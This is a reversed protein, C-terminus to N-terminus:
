KVVLTRVEVKHNLVIKVLYSGAEINAARIQKEKDFQHITEKYILKGSFDFIFVEEVKNNGQYNLAFNGNKSPNPAILVEDSPKEENGGEASEQDPEEVVPTSTTEIILSVNDVLAKTVTYANSKFNAIFRVIINQGEYGKLNELIQRTIEVNIGGEKPAIGFSQQDVMTILENSETYLGTTFTHAESLNVDTYNYEVLLDFSITASTMLLEEKPLAITQELVYEENQSGSFSTYAAFDGKTPLIDPVNACLRQLYNLVTFGKHCEDSEKIESSIWDGLRGCEFSGNKIYENKNNESVSFCSPQPECVVQAKWGSASIIVDSFLEFTLSGSTHSSIFTGPLSNGTYGSGNFLRPYSNDPGDYVRLYDFGYELDFSEFTVRVREGSVAPSVVSTSTENIEYDGDPGGSDYFYGSTCFDETTTISLPGVYASKKDGSCVARVYFDYNELSTLGNIDHYNENVNILTGTGISFGSIGYEIEWQSATGKEWQLGIYSPGIETYELEVPSPCLTTFTNIASFDTTKCPNDSKVRWFYQTNYELVDSIYENEFVSKSDIINTFNIDTAIQIDFTTANENESWIFMHNLFIGSEDDFPSVLNSASITDDFIYFKLQTKKEIGSVSRGIIFFTYEGVDLNQVGSLTIGVPTEVLQSGSISSPTFDIGLGLPLNEVSFTVEQDFDLYTKYTLEYSLEENFCLLETSTVPAISFESVQIQFNTSNVAFFINNVAKVMIRAHETSEVGQLVFTETGDNDINDQLTYPYTYGGDVSLLISVKDANIPNQDTNAVDWEVTIQKGVDITESISQSTVRFPGSTDDVTVSMGDTNTQGGGPENDRVTFEFKMNRAVSPLVEWTPTLDGALVDALQPMYRKTSSSPLRSRFLPGNTWNSQPYNSSFPNEPNNQEWCYTLSTDGDIDNADGQLVFPTSRPIIFDPGANAVPAINGTDIVEACASNNITWIAVDRIDVYNFYDDPTNQVNPSCIGAYGMISSGSGPEVESNFGSRCNSSSQVHYGGFQHGFEHAVILNFHDSDPARHVTYGKGKSGDTCVCAICGANGYVADEVHFLHGVDYGWGEDFSKTDLTNQLETNLNIGTSYPDSLPDLFLLSDNEPIIQMTVGFDREFIANVRVITAVAAAMIKTKRQSDNVETGDLFYQSYDGSTSLALRYRRLKGDNANRSNISQLDSLKATLNDTTQCDFDFRRSQKNSRYFLHSNKNVPKILMTQKGATTISGRLGVIPCYTFQITKNPDTISRGVYTKISPYKKALDRHMVDTEHVKYAILNGKDGPFNIIINKSKFDFSGSSQNLLHQFNKNNLDFISYEQTDVKQKYSLNETKQEWITQACVRFLSGFFFCFILLKYTIKNM